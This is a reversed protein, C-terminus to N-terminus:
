CCTEQPLRNEFFLKINSSTTFNEAILQNQFANFIRLSLETNVTCDFSTPRITQTLSLACQVSIEASHLPKKHIAHANCKETSVSTHKTLEQIRKSSVTSSRYAAHLESNCINCQQNNFGCFLVHKTKKSAVSSSSANYGHLKM